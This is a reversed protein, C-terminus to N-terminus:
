AAYPAARQHTHAGACGGSGDEVAVDCRIPVPHPSAVPVGPLPTRQRRRSPASDPHAARWGLGGGTCGGALPCRGAWAGCGEVPYCGGQDQYTRGQTLWRRRGDPGPQPDPHCGQGRLPLPGTFQQAHARSAATFSWSWPPAPATGWVGWRQAKGEGNRSQAASLATACSLGKTCHLSTKPKRSQDTM